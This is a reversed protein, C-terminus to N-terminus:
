RGTDQECSERALFVVGSTLDFTFRRDIQPFAGIATIDGPVVTMCADRNILRFLMAPPLRVEAGPERFHLTLIPMRFWFAATAGRLCFGFGPRSVRPLGIPRILEDLARELAEYAARVLVLGTTGVNLVTGGKGTAPDRRFTSADVGPLATNGVSIGVLEVFYPGYDAGHNTNYLLQAHPMGETGGVEDDFRLFGQGPVTPMRRLYYSFRKPKPHRTRVAQMIQTSATDVAHGDVELVLLLLAVVVLMAPKEM